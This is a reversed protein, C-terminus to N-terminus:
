KKELTLAYIEQVSHDRMLLIKGNPSLGYWAAFVDVPAPFDKLSMVDELVRNKIRVRVIKAFGGDSQRVYVFKGGPSWENNAFHVGKALESWSSTDKDFLMLRTTRDAFAAIYRGNPSLRPSSLGTSGQIQTLRGTDLDVRYIASQDVDRAAGRGFIISKGDPVWTPDTDVDDINSQTIQKASEGGASPILYPKWPRHSQVDQFAIRSSDPSWRPEYARVQPFTLQTKESLDPRSKWLTMDPYSVWALWKGDPSLAVGSASLGGLYPELRKGQPDYSFLEVRSQEGVAFLSKGDLSPTPAGFRLPGTALRVPEDKRQFISRRPIVWIAPDVTSAFYFASTLFYYDSDPSWRGCCQDPSEKWNPLLQQLHSGDPHMEWISSSNARADLVSLRVLRGDPSFRIWRAQGPIEAIARAESGDQNAILIKQQNAYIIRTGDPMWSATSAM